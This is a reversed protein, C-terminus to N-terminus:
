LSKFEDTDPENPLQKGYLRAMLVSLISALYGVTAIVRAYQMRTPGIIGITGAAEKPLGYRSLVMSYGQISETKNEKGIIVRVENSGLEPPLINRLLSRHEMMELLAAAMQRNHIFEPQRLIFYLGELYLDAGGEDESEMTDILVDTLQREMETLGTSKERIKVGTMGAYLASLKNAMISMESQTVAQGFEILKQRVRAGNLVLIVLVTAGQLSVLELHKFQCAEPQPRTVIAANQAMRALLEAALSLWQDLEREVQHFVHSIQRREVLPLRTNGLTQVYYRYGKDSPMSGASHHPRLLYGQEELVAVENRITASSVDLGFRNILMQSPVATAQATYLEIISKLIKEQRATLM